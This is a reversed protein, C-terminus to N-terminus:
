EFPCRLFHQRGRVFWAGYPADGSGVAFERSGVTAKGNFQGNGITREPAAVVQKFFEPIDAVGLLGVPAVGVQDRDTKPTPCRDFIVEMVDDNVFGGSGPHAFEFETDIGLQGRM